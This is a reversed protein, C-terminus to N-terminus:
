PTGPGAGTPPATGEKFIRFVVRRLDADADGEAAGSRLDSVRQMMEQARTTDGQRQYARALLYMPGPADPDLEVAKRLEAIGSEVHGQGLLLKGLEARAPAFRPDARLASAFATKAEAAAPSTPEAGSRMLAVGLMYALLPERALVKARPRLVEVARAGQGTQMWAMALGVYPIPNRPALVRAKEFEKEAEGLVGKEALLVGRQLRLKLSSPLQRLGVDVIELGLDYNQHQLCFAALDLYHQEATPELAAAQRLADYAEKLQGAALHARSALSLLEGTPKGEAFLERIVSLAAESQGSEVLMLAQNYGAAAPDRYGARASAFFRAAEASAQNRGLLVGAQFRNDADEAALETLVAVAEDRRSKALLAEAYHRLATPNKMVRARSKEYHELAPALQQRRHHIEGLHFHAVDDAPANKLVAQFRRQAETLRDRNFENVGLNRAAPSFAPDLALAARFRTNAETIRGAGTLAIGLLNLVRLDRPVRTQEKELLAIAPAFEERTVHQVACDYPTACDAGALLLVLLLPSGPFV